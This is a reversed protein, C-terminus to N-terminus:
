LITYYYYYFICQTYIYIYLPSTGGQVSILHTPGYDNGRCFIMNHIIYIYILIICPPCRMKPKKNNNNQGACLARAINNNKRHSEEAAADRRRARVEGANRRTNYIQGLVVTKKEQEQKRRGRGGGGVGPSTQRYVCLNADWSVKYGTATM